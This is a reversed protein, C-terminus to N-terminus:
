PTARLRFLIAGYEVEGWPNLPIDDTPTFGCKKHVAQSKANNKSITCAAETMGVSQLFSITHLLLASAFGRGRKEPTTELAELFWRGPKTEIARLASAWEGSVEEVLILRKPDRIFDRVFISYAERMASDCDFNQRLDSMSESYISFLNDIVSDNIQNISILM